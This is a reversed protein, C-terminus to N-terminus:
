AATTEQKIFSLDQHRAALIAAGAGSPHTHPASIIQQLYVFIAISIEGNQFASHLHFCSFGFCCWYCNLSALAQEAEIDCRVGCWNGKSRARQLLTRCSSSEGTAAGWPCTDEASGWPVSVASICRQELRASYISHKLLILEIQLGHRQCLRQFCRM